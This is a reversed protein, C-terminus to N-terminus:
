GPLPAAHEPGDSSQPAAQPEAVVPARMRLYLALVAIWVLSAGFVHLAVLAPPVGTFYQTYGVAGQLVLLSM